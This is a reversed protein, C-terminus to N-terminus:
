VCGKSTRVTLCWSQWAGRLGAYVAGDALVVLTVVGAFAQRTFSANKEFIVIINFKVTM